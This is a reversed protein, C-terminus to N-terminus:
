ATEPEWLSFPAQALHSNTYRRDGSVDQIAWAPRVFPSRTGALEIEAVVLGANPGRFVDLDWIGHDHVERHRTKEVFCGGCLGDLMEEADAVPIPYEFELRRIGDRPGKVTLFAADDVIRVRVCGGAENSIYGQRISVGASQPRWRRIDVLFKREIEWAM